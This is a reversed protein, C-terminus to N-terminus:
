TTVRMTADNGPQEWRPEVYLFPVVNCVGSCIKPVNFVVCEGPDVEVNATAYVVHGAKDSSTGFVSDITTASAGSALSLHNFTGQFGGATTGSTTYVVGVARVIMPMFGPYWRVKDGSTTASLGSAAMPVHQKGHPYAM